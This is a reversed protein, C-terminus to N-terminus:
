NTSLGQITQFVLTGTAVAIVPRVRSVPSSLSTNFSTTTGAPAIDTWTASADSVNPSDITYQIGYTMTGTSITAVLSVAFPAISPDLSLSDKTGATTYNASHYYAM